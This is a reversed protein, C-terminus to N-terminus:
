VIASSRPCRHQDGTASGLAPVEDQRVYIVTFLIRITAEITRWFSTLRFSSDAATSAPSRPAPRDHASEGFTEGGRDQEQMKVIRYRM